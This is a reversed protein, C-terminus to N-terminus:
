KKNEKPKDIKMWALCQKQTFQHKAYYPLGKEAELFVISPVDADCFPAPFPSRWWYLWWGPEDPKDKWDTM